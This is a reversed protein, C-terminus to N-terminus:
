RSSKTRNKLKPATSLDFTLRLGDIRQEQALTSLFVGVYQIAAQGPILLQESLM